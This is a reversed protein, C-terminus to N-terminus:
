IFHFQEWATLWFLDTNNETFSMDDTNVVNKESHTKQFPFFLCVFFEVLYCCFGLWGWLLFGVVLLLFGSGGEWTAVAERWLFVVFGVFFDGGAFFDWVGFLLVSGGGGRVRCFFGM